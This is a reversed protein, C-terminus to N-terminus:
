SSPEPAERIFRVETATDGQWGATGGYIGGSAFCLTWWTVDGLMSSESRCWRDGDKYIKSEGVPEGNEGEPAGRNYHKVSSDAPMTPMVRTGDGRALGEGDVFWDGAIPNTVLDPDLFSSCEIHSRTADQAADTSTVKCTMTTTQKADRVEYTWSAGRVFLEAYLVTPRVPRGHNAVTAVTANGCGVLAAIAIYRM